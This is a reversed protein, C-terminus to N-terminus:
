KAWRRGCHKCKAHAPPDDGLHLAEGRGLRWTWVHWGVLCLLKRFIVSM